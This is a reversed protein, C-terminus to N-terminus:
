SAANHDQQEGLTMWKVPGLYFNAAVVFGLTAFATICTMVIKGVVVLRIAEWIGLIAALGMAVICVMSAMLLFRRAQRVPVLGLHVPYRAPLPQSYLCNRLLVKKAQVVEDFSPAPEVSQSQLESDQM